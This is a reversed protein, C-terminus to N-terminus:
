GTAGLRRAMWDGQAPRYKYPINNCVHNGDEFMWLEASEGADRVLEEVDEAPFLRDRRGMIVLLPCRMGSVVGHLDFKELKSRAEEPSGAHLRHIFAERTLIPVKDFYDAMRYGLALAIAAKVRTELAAARTAYYGGVSVGMLGVRGGDLDRRGEIFDIVPGVVAEWDHRMPLDFELEGQGPGDIALTALGRRLFDEGYAQVEEKVSDLGPILIVVPPKPLHPPKRLIGPLVGTEFPIEVREGPIDLYPLARQYLEVVREHARRQEVPRHFFMYKGFHFLMAAQWYHQAASRYFGAAEARDGLCAHIAGFESWAALWDDWAELKATIREFDNIDVGNAVFRPYWNEIAAQVRADKAM